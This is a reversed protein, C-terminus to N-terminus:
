PKGTSYDGKSAIRDVLLRRLGRETKDAATNPLYKIIESISGYFVGAEILESLAFLFLKKDRISLLIQTQKKAKLHTINLLNFEYKLSHSSTKGKPYAPKPLLKQREVKEPLLLHRNATGIQLNLSSEETKEKLNRFKM